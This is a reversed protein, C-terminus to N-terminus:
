CSARGIEPFIASLVQTVMNMMNSIMGFVFGLGSAKKLQDQQDRMKGISQDMLRMNKNHHLKRAIKADKISDAATQSAEEMLTMVDVGVGSTGTVGLGM